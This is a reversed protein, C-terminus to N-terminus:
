VTSETRTFRRAAWLLATVATLLLVAAELAPPPQWAGWHVGAPASPDATRRLADAAYALPNLAATATVWAPLASLPVLAGSGFLLPAGTLALVTTFTEPRRTRVALALALATLALAALSLHALLGLLPLPRYPLGGAPALALLVAGQATATVCGGLCIGCLLTSRRAPAVLIERVIGSHRDTILRIGVSVAPAQVAMLLIGPYLFARYQGGVASNPVLASLGGGFALLFLLPQLLLLVTNTPDAVLRLWDRLVLGHVARLEARLGGGGAPAPAPCPPGCS